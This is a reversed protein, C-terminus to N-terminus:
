AGLIGKIVGITSGGEIGVYGGTLSKVNHSMNHICCLSLCASAAQTMCYMMIRCVGNGCLPYPLKQFGDGYMGVHDKLVGGQLGTCIVLSSCRM